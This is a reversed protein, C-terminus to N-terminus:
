SEASWNLSLWLLAVAETPTAAMRNVPSTSWALWDGDPLRRLNEFKDGCAEILEDLTPVYAFDERRAVIQEPNGVRKGTGHQLFGADKLRKALEYDM